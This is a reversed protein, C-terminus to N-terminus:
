KTPSAPAPATGVVPTIVVGAVDGKIALKQKRSTTGRAKRTARLKEKAAVKQEVTRPAPVKPPELGFEALKTVATGFASLLFRNVDRIRPDVEAEVSRLKAVADKAAAQAANVAQIAEAKTQLVQVLSATTFATNALTFSANPFNALIGAVLAQVQALAAAKSESKPVSM